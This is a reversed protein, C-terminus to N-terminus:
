KSGNELVDNCSTLLPLNLLTSCRTKAFLLVALTATAANQLASTILDVLTYPGM